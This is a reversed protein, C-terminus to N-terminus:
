RSRKSIQQIYLKYYKCVFPPRIVNNENCIASKHGQFCVRYHWVMTNLLFVYSFRYMAECEPGDHDSSLRSRESIQQIYLKYYKCVLPHCVSGNDRSSAIKPGQFSVRYHWVMTNLIFVYRFRYMAEYEPGDRGSYLRYRESIQQIFLKYCNCVFSPLWIGYDRNSRARKPGQLCVRYPWVM